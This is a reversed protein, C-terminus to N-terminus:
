PWLSCYADSDELNPGPIGAADLLKVWGNPRGPRPSNGCDTHVWDIGQGGHHTSFLNGCLDLRDGPRLSSLPAPVAEGAQDYGAAFVNDIRVDYATGDEALLTLRTHSLEVGKRDHGSVFRPGTEITGTVYHGANAQCIRAEDAIAPSAIALGLVVYLSFKM